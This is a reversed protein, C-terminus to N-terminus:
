RALEFMRRAKAEFEAPHEPKFRGAVRSLVEAFSERTTSRSM